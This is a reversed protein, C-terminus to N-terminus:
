CFELLGRHDVRQAAALEESPEGRRVQICNRVDSQDLRKLLIIVQKPFASGSQTEVDRLLARDIDMADIGGALFLDDM